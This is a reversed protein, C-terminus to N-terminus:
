ESPEWLCEERRMFCLGSSQLDLSESFRPVISNKSDSLSLEGVAREWRGRRTSSWCLVDSHRTFALSVTAQPLSGRGACSLTEPAARVDEPQLSTLPCVQLCLPAPSKSVCGKRLRGLIGDAPKRESLRLSKLHIWPTRHGRSPFALQM